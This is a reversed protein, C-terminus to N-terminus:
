GAALERVNHTFSSLLGLSGPNFVHRSVACVTVARCKWRGSLQFNLCKQVKKKCGTETGRAMVQM